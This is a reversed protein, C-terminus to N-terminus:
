FFLTGLCSVQAVWARQNLTALNVLRRPDAYQFHCWYTGPPPRNEAPVQFWTALVKIPEIWPLYCDTFLSDHCNKGATAAICLEAKGYIDAM